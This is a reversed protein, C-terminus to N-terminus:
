WGSQWSSKGARHAWLQCPGLCFCLNELFHLLGLVLLHTQAYLSGWVTVLCELSYEGETWPPCWHGSGPALQRGLHNGLIHGPSWTGVLHSLWVSFARSFSPPKSFPSWWRLSFFFLLFKFLIWFNAKESLKRCWAKLVLIFLMFVSNLFSFCERLLISQKWM